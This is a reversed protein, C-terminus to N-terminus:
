VPSIINQVASRALKIPSFTDRLLILLKEADKFELRDDEDIFEVLEDMLSIYEYCAPGWTANMSILIIENTYFHDSPKKIGFM